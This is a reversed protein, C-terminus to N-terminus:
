LKSKDIAKGQGILGLVDGHRKLVEQFVIFPLEMAEGKGLYDEFWYCGNLGYKKLTHSDKLYGSELWKGMEETLMSLPYLLPKIGGAPYYNSDHILDDDVVKFIKICCDGDADIQYLFSRENPRWKVELNYPLYLSLYEIDKM